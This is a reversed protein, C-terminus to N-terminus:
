YLSMHKYAEDPIYKTCVHGCGDTCIPIYQILCLM